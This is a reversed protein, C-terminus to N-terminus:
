GGAHQFPALACDEGHARGGLHEGGPEYLEMGPQGNSNGTGLALPLALNQFMKPLSGFVPLVSQTWHWQTERDFAWQNVDDELCSWLFGVKGWVKERFTGNQGIIKFCFKM